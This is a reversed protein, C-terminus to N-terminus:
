GQAQGALQAIQIVVFEAPKLPAFAVLINVTGNAVDAPTTTTGDCVVKFAKSPTDGALAGQQFLGLMFAEVTTRLATGCPRIM